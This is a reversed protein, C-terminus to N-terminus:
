KPELRRYLWRWLVHPVRLRYVYFKTKVTIPPRGEAYVRIRIDPRM